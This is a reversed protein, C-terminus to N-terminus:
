CIRATLSQKSIYPICKIELVCFAGGYRLHPKTSSLAHLRIKRHFSRPLKCIRCRLACSRPSHHPRRRPLSIQISAVHLVRQRARHICSVFVMCPNREIELPHQPRKKFDSSVEHKQVCTAKELALDALLMDREQLVDALQAELQVHSRRSENKFTEYEEEAARHRQELERLAEAGIHWVDHTSRSPAHYM